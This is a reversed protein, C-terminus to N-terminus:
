KIKNSISPKREYCIRFIAGRGSGGSQGICEFVGVSERSYLCAHLYYYQYLVLFIFISLGSYPFIFLLFSLWPFVVLFAYSRQSGCM